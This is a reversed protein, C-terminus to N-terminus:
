TAVEDLFGDDYWSKLISIVAMDTGPHRGAIQDTVQEYNQDGAAIAAATECYVPNGRFHHFQNPSTLDFGGDVPRYVLDDRFRAPQDSPPALPMREDIMRELARRFEDADTFRTTDFVRYGYPWRKSTYCPSVLQITHEVLNILFGSVCAISGQPITCGCWAQDGIARFDSQEELIRGSTIKPRCQDRMQMLLEVDRLEDPSYLEHIKLLLSKSLVSLRPWPLRSARYYALLERMWPVDTVVATSTCVRCGTIAEYDRVFDLYHPNDHPETGYYLLALGAERAGFLDACVRAIDRFLGAGQAHDLNRTLKRAAFGCFWCGISCGDGLEFALIPHDILYGFFGLESRTAQIRRKRWADFAPSRPIDIVRKLEARRLHYRGEVHRLWLDILPYDARFTALSDGDETSDCGLDGQLISEILAPQRWFPALADPDFTVGIRRLREVTEPPCNDRLLSDRFEPDGRFWELFRKIQPILATEEPTFSM